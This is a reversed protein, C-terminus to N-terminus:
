VVLYHVTIATIDLIPPGIWIMHWISGQNVDFYIEILCVRDSNGLQYAMQKNNNKRLGALISSNTHHTSSQM